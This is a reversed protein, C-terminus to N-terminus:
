RALERVVARAQVRAREDVALLDDISAVSGLRPALAEVTRRNVEHIATFALRRDLFAAVAEENAANLVATSGPRARLADWALQLGPFRVPDAPEFTLSSLALFDLRPAGSEIREPFSLGFTIPVRMDPTGLQALVSGDRCAVMSHIISQPHIVVRIREPELGFLWHAEIVELAKNMMTASDVSIKRGMVWNPHAVAQEPTVGHLTAPDRQRFPGGSATLVVHDICRSWTSRDEPLCQFIASHESDIPLLTAGGKAVAQMFLGAGVVLAEKNALLLRKGARAAAMCPPLGAAGVIAAMVSDVEPLAAVECLAGAGALVETPVGHLAARLLAGQEATPVVAFRPRLLRCQAALEDLRRFASLAVVEFRERHRLVVDITSTGVSGTSGLIALRQARAM